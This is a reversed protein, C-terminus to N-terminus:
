REGGNETIIKFAVSLAAVVFVMTFASLLNVLLGMYPLHRLLQEPISIAFPFIAVVILMLAQHNRTAKWSDPFSWSQDTAIAPFVLSLRAMMYIIAIVAIVWGVTPILALFGLPIMCLGMGISYLVFHFERKRPIYVGWEPVSEPGLLIIRHTTIALLTYIFLPLITLLVMLASGPEQIPIAGLIVLIAIPVLLAKAFPTRYVYVYGFAGWITRKIDM